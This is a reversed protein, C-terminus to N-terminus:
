IIINFFILMYRNSAKIENDKKPPNLKNSLSFKLLWLILNIKIEIPQEIM